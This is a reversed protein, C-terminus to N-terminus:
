KKSRQLDESLGAAIDKLTDLFDIFDDYEIECTVVANGKIINDRMGISILRSGELRSVQLTASETTVYARSSRGDVQPVVLM